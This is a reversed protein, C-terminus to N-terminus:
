AWVFFSLGIHKGFCIERGIRTLASLPKHKGGSHKRAQDRNDAYCKADHPKLMRLGRRWNGRDDMYRRRGGSRVSYNGAFLHNNSLGPIFVMLWIADINFTFIVRLFHCNLLSDCQAFLRARNALWLILVKCWNSLLYFLAPFNRSKKNM